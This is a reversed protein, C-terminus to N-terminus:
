IIIIIIISNRTPDLVAAGNKQKLDANSILVRVGTSPPPRRALHTGLAVSFVFLSKGYLFSVVALIAGEFFKM